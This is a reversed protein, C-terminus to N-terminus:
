ISKAQNQQVIRKNKNGKKEKEERDHIILVMLGSHNRHKCGMLLVKLANLSIDGLRQLNLHLLIDSVLSLPM